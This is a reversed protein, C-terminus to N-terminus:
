SHASLAEECATSCIVKRVEWIFGFIDAGCYVCQGHLVKDKQHDLAQYNRPALFQERTPDYIEGNPCVLWNHEHGNCWGRELHLEPFQTVMAGCFSQCCGRVMEAVTLKELSITLEQRKALLQERYSDYRDVNM